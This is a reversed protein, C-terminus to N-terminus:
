CALTLWLPDFDAELTTGYAGYLVLLAAKAAEMEPEVVTLPIRVSGDTSPITTRRLRLGAAAASVADAAAASPPPVPPASVAGSALCVDWARPYDLPSSGVIRATTAAPCANAGPRICAWAGHPPLAVPVPPSATPPAGLGGGGWALRILSVGPVHAATDREYLVVADATGHGCFADLDTIVRGSRRPILPAWGPPPVGPGAAWGLWAEHPSVAGGAESGTTRENTLLLLGGRGDGEVFTEVYPDPMAEGGSGVVAFSHAAPASGGLRLVHPVAADRRVATATLWAGDKTRGLALHSRPDPWALLLPHHHRGARPTPSTGGWVLGAAVRVESPRGDGRSGCATYFLDGSGPEGWEVGVAGPLRAVETAGPGVRWVSACPGGDAESVVAVFGGCPSLKVSALGGASRLHATVASSDLVLAPPASPAHLPTRFLSPGPEGAAQASWYRWPGVTEPVTAESAPCWAAARAAFRAALPSLRAHWARAITDDAGDSDHATSSGAAASVRRPHHHLHPPSPAIPEAWAVGAWRARLLRSGVLALRCREM